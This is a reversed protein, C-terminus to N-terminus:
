RRSCFRLSPSPLTPCSQICAGCRTCGAIPGLHRPDLQWSCAGICSLGCDAPTCTAKTWGVNITRSTRLLVLLAGVPCLARCWLRRPLILELLFLGGLLSLTGLSAAGLFIAETALVTVLRPASILAVIPLGLVGSLVMVLALFSWRLRGVSRPKQKPTRGVRGKLWAIQESVWGWPCLWSCFVPGLLLALLVPLILGGLLSLILSGTALTTSLGLAPDVLSIPGIRLSALTGLVVLQGHRNTIPLAVFFVILLFQSIRRLRTWRWVRRSDKFLSM